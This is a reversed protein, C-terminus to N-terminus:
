CTLRRNGWCSKGQKHFFYIRIVHKERQVSGGVRMSRGWWGAMCHFILTKLFFFTNHGPLWNCHVILTREGKTIFSFFFTYTGILLNLFVNVLINVITIEAFPSKHTLKNRQMWKNLRATVKTGVRKEINWVRWPMEWPPVVDIVKFCLREVIIIGLKEPLKPVRLNQPGAWPSPHLAPAGQVQMKFEEEKWKLRRLGLAVSPPGHCQSVAGNADEVRRLHTVM